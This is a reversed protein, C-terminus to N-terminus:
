VLEEEVEPVDVLLVDASGRRVTSPRGPPLDLTRRLRALYAQVTDSRDEAKRHDRSFPSVM